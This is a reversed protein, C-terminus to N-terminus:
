FEEEVGMLYKDYDTKLMPEVCTIYKGERKQFSSVFNSANLLNNFTGTDLWRFGDDFM